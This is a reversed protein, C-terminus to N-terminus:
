RVVVVKSALVGGTLSLRVLKVGPRVALRTLTNAPIRVSRHEARGAADYVSLVSSEGSTVWIGDGGRVLSLGHPKSDLCGAIGTAIGCSGEYPRHNLSTATVLMEGPTRPHIPITGSGQIWRREYVETGQTTTM